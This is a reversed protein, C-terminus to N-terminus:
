MGLGLSPGRQLGRELNLERALERTWGAGRVVQDLRSGSQIGFEAGRQRLLSDLPKNGKLRTVFAEMGGVAARM